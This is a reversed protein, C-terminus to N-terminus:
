PDPQHNRRQGCLFRGITWLLDDNMLKEFMAGKLNMESINNWSLHLDHTPWGTSVGSEISTIQNGNLCAELNNLGDFTAM